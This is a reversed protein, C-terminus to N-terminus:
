VLDVFMWAKSILNGVKFSQGRIMDFPLVFSKEVHHEPVSCLRRCFFRSSIRRPRLRLRCAAGGLSDLFPMQLCNAWCPLQARPLVQGNSCAPATRSAPLPLPLPRPLLLFPDPLPLLRLLLLSRGLERGLNRDGDGVDFPRARDGGLPRDFLGELLLSTQM